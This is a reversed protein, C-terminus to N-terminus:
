SRSSSQMGVPLIYDSVSVYIQPVAATPEPITMDTMDALDLPEGNPTATQAVSFLEAGCAICINFAKTTSSSVRTCDVAVLVNDHEM